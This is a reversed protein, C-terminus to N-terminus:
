GGRLGVLYPDANISIRRHDSTAGRNLLLKFALIDTALILPCIHPDFIIGATPLAHCTMTRSCGQFKADVFSYFTSVRQRTLCHESWKGEIIRTDRQPSYGARGDIDYDPPCSKSRSEM